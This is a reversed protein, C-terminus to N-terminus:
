PKRRFFAGFRVLLQVAMLVVSLLVILKTFAPLPSNWSSGSTQLRWEGGPTHTANWALIWAAYGIAVCFGIGLLLQVLKLWRRGGPPLIDHLVNIQIHRNRALTYPGGLAFIAAVLFTTTEHVWTTPSNFVYRMIVEYVSIAMALLVLWACLKGAKEVLRDMATIEKDADPLSSDLESSAHLGSLEQESESPHHYKSM